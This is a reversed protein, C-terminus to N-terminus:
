GERLTCLAQRIEGLHYATHVVIAMSGGIQPLKDWAHFGQMHGVIREYTERLTAKSAEWEEPTVTSVTNWIHNWDVKGLQQGLMWDELVECYFNVHAVQAAISACTSSVPRSALEASIGELTEFLSTGKDLFMGHGGDFAEKFAPFICDVYIDRPNDLKPEQDTM